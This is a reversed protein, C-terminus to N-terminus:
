RHWVEQPTHTRSSFFGDQIFSPLEFVRSAPLPAFHGYIGIRVLLTPHSDLHGWVAYIRFGQEDKTDTSSFFPRMVHHSHLDILPAPLETDYLVTPTVSAREQHQDPKTWSWAGNCWRLHFLIEKLENTEPDRTDFSQALLEIVMAQSVRPYDMEFTTSLPFLGIIPVPGLLVPIIAEVGERRARVFVGNSATWCEMFHTARPPPLESHRMYYDGIFGM